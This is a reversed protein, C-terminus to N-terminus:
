LPSKLETDVGILTGLKAGPPVTAGETRNAFQGPPNGGAPMAGPACNGPLLIGAQMILGFEVARTLAPIKGDGVSVGALPIPCNRPPAFVGVFKFSSTTRMSWLKLLLNETNPWKM